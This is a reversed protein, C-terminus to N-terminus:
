IDKTTFYQRDLIEKTSIFKPSINILSKEINKSQSLLNFGELARDLQNSEYFCKSAM